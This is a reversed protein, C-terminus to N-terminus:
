KWEGQLVFAGWYYPSQWQPRRWMEVQAARLAAAPRKGEQLMGQYFRKMLESTAADDVKWLSATVRAAGAYMFGRTLGVLGEGKIEKGLGTQCASLVVLEASLRLNFIDHLQLFGDQPGGREDVLSLVLGSLKPHRSNLLGHTAFHVIRYQSLEDSTGTARSARFDLAELRANSPTLSFIAQAEERTMLLRALEGRVDTLARTLNSSTERANRAALDRGSPKVRADDATFVPDALVAVDKPAPKRGALERRLVALTSASPLHVIEHEVILPTPSASPRPSPSPERGTSPASVPRRPSSAATRPSLDDGRGGTGRGGLREPVPLVGFPLYQLAGDAVILLRKNSLQAAAPGLLIRSLVAAQPWYSARAERIRAQRTSATDGPRPQPATLLEHVRRTAEEIESRKPLQHSTISTNSVVFLYSADEGLSYELLLTDPDLVQRQIESLNLPQPQTLAAYRPSSARIQAEVEDYEATIAAIEKAIAEAQAPTHRRNLLSTQASAKTALRQQLSRERELLSSDVGQRIDARAETLLELLSRARARESVGLAAAEFAGAPNQRHMEMLVQLYFRYFEQQSALYSARLDQSVVDARLSEIVGIAQEITRRAQALNGRKQEVRAMGLLTAAEGRRDGLEQAISYAEKHKDFAKESEGLSNYTVGLRHLTLAEQGRNGIARNIPLAENYKELAKEMEGSSMYVNGINTLTAAEVRRDGIRRSIPLAENFKDLAKQSERMSLHANGINNLTIAEGRLVGEERYIHLSETYKELAKQIEGLEWYAVGINNLTVSMGLRHGIARIIPLVENFKDLAKQTEGSSLYVNGINNLNKAEGERNGIARKIPLAQNFKELAKQGDGLSLYVTGISTLTEAEGDRDDMARKIPLAEDYKELAKEMEGLSFYVEGINHLTEAEGNREGARRYLELAGQYKEISKRRAELTGKELLKAEESIAGAAILYKEEATPARLEEIKIEYRGTEAAKELSRVEIRYTGTVDAIETITEPGTTGNPSDVESKREGDPAFLTVVVDIGRQDVVLHLYQGAAMAIRYSHSQDGSLEREIPKGPELQRDQGDIQSENSDKGDRSSVTAGGAPAPSSHERGRGARGVRWDLPTTVRGELAFTAMLSTNIFLIAALFRWARMRM